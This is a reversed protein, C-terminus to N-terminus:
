VRLTVAPARVPSATRWANLEAASADSGSPTVVRAAVYALAAAPISSSLAPVDRCCVAPSAAALPPPSLRPVSSPLPSCPDPLISPTSAESGAGEGSTCDTSTSRPLVARLTFQLSLTRDHAVRACRGMGNRVLWTYPKRSVVSALNHSLINNANKQALHVAVSCWVRGHNSKLWWTAM